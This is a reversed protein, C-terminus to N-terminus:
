AFPWNSKPKQKAAPRRFPTVNSNNQTPQSPRGTPRAGRQQAFSTSPAANKKAKIAQLVANAAILSGAVCFGILWLIQGTQQYVAFGMMVMAADLVFARIVTRRLDAKPGQPSARQIM